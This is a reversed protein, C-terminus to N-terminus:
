SGLRRATKFRSCFEVLIAVLIISAGVGQLAVQWQTMFQHEDYFFLGSLVSGANLAGYEIPLAVSVEFRRYIFPMLVLSGGFACFVWAAISAYLVPKDCSCGVFDANGCTALMASWARILLDSMAEVLGLSGPMVVAMVVNLVPSPARQGSSPSSFRSGSGTGSAHQGGGGGGGATTTSSDHVAAASSADDNVIARPLPSGGGDGDGTGLAHHKAGHAGNGGGGGGSGGGGGGGGSADSKSASTERPPAPYLCEFWAMALIGAVMVSSIIVLYAPHNEFLVTIEDPTFQIKAGLPAGVSALLAGLLICMSVAVKVATIEEGLLKRAFVLNFVLLVSFVSGLVSLPGLNFAAVKFGNAVGYLIMGGFWVVMRHWKLRCLRIYEQPHALGYRQVVMSYALVAAGAVTLIISIILSATTTATGDGGDGASTSNIRTCNTM